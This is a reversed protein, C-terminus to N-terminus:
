VVVNAPLTMERVLKATGGTNVVPMWYHTSAPLATPDPVALSMKAGAAGLDSVAAVPDAAVGNEIKEYAPEIVGEAIRTVMLYFGVAYLVAAILLLSIILNFLATGWSFSFYICAQLFMGFLWIGVPIAVWLFRPVNVPASLSEVARAVVAPKFKDDHQWGYAAFPETAAEECFAQMMM